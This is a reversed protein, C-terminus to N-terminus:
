PRELIRHKRHAPRARRCPPAVVAGILALPINILIQLVIRVDRFHSHLVLFVLLFSLVALLAIRRTASQQSEFQGGYQLDFGTLDVGAAIARRLDGVVGGLDRGGGVNASVVLRRQLRPVERM